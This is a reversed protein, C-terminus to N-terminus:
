GMINCSMRLPKLTGECTPATGNWVGFTGISEAVCTRTATDGRIGYGFDCVYAANTLFDFFALTDPSFDIRGNAPNPIDLCTIVLASFFFNSM